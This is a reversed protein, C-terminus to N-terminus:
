YLNRSIENTSLKKSLEWIAKFNQVSCPLVVATSQTFNWFTQRNFSIDHVFLIECSKIILHTEPASSPLAQTNDKVHVQVYVTVCVHIIGKLTVDHSTLGSHDEHCVTAAYCAGRVTLLRKIQSLRPNVCQYDALNLFSFHLWHTQSM